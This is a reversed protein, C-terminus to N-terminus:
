NSQQISQRHEDIRKKVFHLGSFITSKPSCRVVCYMEICTKNVNLVLYVSRILLLPRSWLLKTVCLEQVLLTGIRFM